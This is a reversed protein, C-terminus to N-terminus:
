SFTPHAFEDFIRFFKPRASLRARFRSISFSPSHSVEFIGACAERASTSFFFFSLFVGM